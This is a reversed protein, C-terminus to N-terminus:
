GILEKIFQQSDFIISKMFKEFLLDISDRDNLYLQMCRVLDNKFGIRRSFQWLIMEIGEESHYQYLWEHEKLLAYMTKFDDELYHLNQDTEHYVMKVFDDFPKACYNSWNKTLYHDLIIDTAIYAIKQVGKDQFKKGIAKIYHSSDTYNDIYRHLYVGQLIHPPLSRFKELNGKYSDGAFNGAILQPHERAIYAHGVFNM